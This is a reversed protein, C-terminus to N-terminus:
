RSAFFTKMANSLEAVDVKTKDRVKRLHERLLKNDPETELGKKFDEEALDLKNIEIYASGRRYLAKINKPEQELVKSCNKIAHEFQSM